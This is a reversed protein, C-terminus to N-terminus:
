CTQLCQSLTSVHKYAIQEDDNDDDDDEEEEEEM